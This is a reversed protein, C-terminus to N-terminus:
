DTSFPEEVWNGGEKRRAAFAGHGNPIYPVKKTNWGDPVNAAFSRTFADLASEEVSVPSSRAKRFDDLRKKQLNECFTCPQVEAKAATKISLEQVLTLEPPFMSRVSSRLSGCVIGSPPKCIAKLSQDVELLRVIKQVKRRYDGSRACCDTRREKRSKSGLISFRNEPETPELDVWFSSQQKSSPGTGFRWRREAKTYRRVNDSKGGPRGTSELPTAGVERHPPDRDVAFATTTCPREAQPAYAGLVGNYKAAPHDSPQKIKEKISKITVMM